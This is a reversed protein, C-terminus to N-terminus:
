DKGLEWLIGECDPCILKVTRDLEHSYIGIKRSFHTAGYNHQSDKPIEEGQLNVKCHKCTELNTKYEM